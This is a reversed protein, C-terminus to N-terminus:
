LPRHPHGGLEERLRYFSYPKPAASGFRPAASHYTWRKRDCYLDYEARASKSPPAYGLALNGRSINGPGSDPLERFAYRERLAHKALVANAREIEDILSAKSQVWQAQVREQLEFTKRLEAGQAAANLDDKDKADRLLQELPHEDSM